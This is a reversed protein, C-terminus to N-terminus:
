ACDCSLGCAPDGEQSCPCAERLWLTLFVGHVGTSETGCAPAWSVASQGHPPREAPPPVKRLLSVAAATEGPVRPSEVYKAKRIPGAPTTVPVAPPHLCLSLSLSLSPPFLIRPPNLGELHSKPAFTPRPHSRASHPPSPILLLLFAAGTETVQRKTRIHTHSLSVSFCRAPVYSYCKPGALQRGEDKWSSPASGDHTYPPNRAVLLM